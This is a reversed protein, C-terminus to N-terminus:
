ATSRTYPLKHLNFFMQFFRIGPAFMYKGGTAVVWGGEISELEKPNDDTIRTDPLSVKVISPNSDEYVVTGGFEKMQSLFAETDM